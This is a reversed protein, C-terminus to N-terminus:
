NPLNPFDTRLGARAQKDQKMARKIARNFVILVVAWLGTGGLWMAIVWPQHLNLGYYLGGGGLALVPGLLVVIWLVVRRRRESMSMVTAGVLVPSCRSTGSARRAVGSGPFPAVIAM